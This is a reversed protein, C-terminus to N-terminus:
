QPPPVHLPPAGHDHAPAQDDALESVTPDDAATQRPDRPDTVDHDTVDHDTADLDLARTPPDTAGHGDDTATRPPPGLARPPDRTNCNRPRRTTSRNCSPRTPRTPRTPRPIDSSNCPRRRGSAVHALKERVPFPLM